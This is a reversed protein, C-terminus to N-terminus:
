SLVNKKIETFRLCLFEIKMKIKNRTAPTGRHGLDFESEAGLM